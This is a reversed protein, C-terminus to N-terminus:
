LTAFGLVVVVALLVLESLIWPLGRHSPAALHHVAAFLGLYFAAVMVLNFSQADREGPEPAALLADSLGLFSHTGLMFAFPLMFLVAAWLSGRPEDKSVGM